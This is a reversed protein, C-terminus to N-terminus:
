KNQKKSKLITTRWARPPLNNEKLIMARARAWASRDSKANLVYKANITPLEYHYAEIEILYSNVGDKTSSISVKGKLNFLKSLNM